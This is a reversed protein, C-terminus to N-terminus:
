KAWLFSGEAFSALIRIGHPFVTTNPYLLLPVINPMDDNRGKRNSGHFSKRKSRPLSFFNTGVKEFLAIVASDARRSSIKTRDCKRRKHSSFANVNADNRFNPSLITMLFVADAAVDALLACNQGRRTFFFFVCLFFIHAIFPLFNRQLASATHSFFFM